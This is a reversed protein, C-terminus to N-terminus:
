FSFIVETHWVSNIHDVKLINQSAGNEYFIVQKLITVKSWVIANQWFDVRNVGYKYHMKLFQMYNANM